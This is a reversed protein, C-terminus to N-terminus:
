ASRASADLASADAASADLAQALERKLARRREEYAARAASDAAGAREFEADLSASERALAEPRTSVAVRAAMGFGGVLVTSGDEIDAVSEATTDCITAM